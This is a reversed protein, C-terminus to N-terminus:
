STTLGNDELHWYLPELRVDRMPVRDKATDPLHDYVVARMIDVLFVDDVNSTLRDFAARDVLVEADIVGLVKLPGGKSQEQRETFTAVHEVDLVTGDPEPAGGLTGRRGDPEVTRIRFSVVSAGAREMLEPFTELSIPHRFTVLAPVTDHRDFVHAGAGRVREAYDLLASREYTSFSVGAAVQDGLVETKVSWGSGRMLDATAPAPILPDAATSQSSRVVWASIVLGVAVLLVALRWLRGVALRPRM